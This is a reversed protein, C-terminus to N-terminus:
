RQTGLPFARRNRPDQAEQVYNEGFDRQGAQVAEVVAEPGFTKSVALLTVCDSQRGADKCAKDIRKRVEELQTSIAGM